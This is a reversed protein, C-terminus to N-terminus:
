HNRNQAELAALRAEIDAGEILRGLLALVHALKSVDAVNRRGAKGQRYLRALEAKVDDITRLPLRLRQPPPDESDSAGTRTECAEPRDDAAAEARRKRQRPGPQDQPATM